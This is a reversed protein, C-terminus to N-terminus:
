SAHRQYHGYTGRRSNPPLCGGCPVFQPSMGPRRREELAPWANFVAKHELNEKEPSSDTLIKSRAPGTAVMAKEDAVSIAQTNKTSSTNAIMSTADLDPEKSSPVNTEAKISQQSSVRPARLHPPLNAKPTSPATNEKGVGGNPATGARDEESVRTSKVQYNQVNAVTETQSLPKFADGGAKESKAHVVNDVKAGQTENALVNSMSQTVHDGILNETTGHDLDAAKFSMRDFTENTAPNPEVAKIPTLVNTSRAGSLVSPKYRASKPAWISESLPSSSITNIYKTIAEGVDENHTNVAALRPSSAATKPSNVPARLGSHPSPKPQAEPSALLHNDQGAVAASPPTTTGDHEDTRKDARKDARERGVTDLTPGQGGAPQDQQPTPFLTVNSQGQIQALFRRLTDADDVNM